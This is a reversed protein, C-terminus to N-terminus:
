ILSCLFELFVKDSLKKSKIEDISKQILDIILDSTMVRDKYEEYNLM